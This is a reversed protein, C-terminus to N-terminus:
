DDTEVLGIGLAAIPPTPPPGPPEPVEEEVFEPKVYDALTPTPTLGYPGLYRNFVRVAMRYDDAEELYCCAKDNVWGGSTEDSRARVKVAYRSTTDTNYAADLQEREELLKLSGDTSEYAGEDIDQDTGLVIESWGTLNNGESRATETCTGEEFEYNGIRFQVRLGEEKPLRRFSGYYTRDGDADDEILVVGSMRWLKGNLDRGRISRDRYGNVRCYAYGIDDDNVQSSFRQVLHRQLQEVSM